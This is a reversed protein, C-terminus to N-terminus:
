NLVSEAVVELKFNGNVSNFFLICDGGFIDGGWIWGRRRSREFGMDMGGM